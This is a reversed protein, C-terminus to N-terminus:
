EVIIITIWLLGNGYKRSNGQAVGIGIRMGSCYVLDRDSYVKDLSPTVYHFARARSRIEGFSQPINPKETLLMKLSHDVAISDVSSDRRLYSYKRNIRKRNLTTEILSATSDVDVTDIAEIFDETVYIYGDSGKLIGMGVHTYEETLINKRHMESNMFGAHANTVNLTRGINEACSGYWIGAVNLREWVDMGDPNVHSFFGREHMDLSHNRAVETVAHHMKLPRLQHEARESNTLALLSDELEAEFKENCFLPAPLSVILFVLLLYTPGTPKSTYTM